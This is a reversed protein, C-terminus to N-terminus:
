SLFFKTRRNGRTPCLAVPALLATQARQLKQSEHSLDRRASLRGDKVRECKQFSAHDRPRLFLIIPNVLCGRPACGQRNRLCCDALSDYCATFCKIGAYARERRQTDRRPSKNNKIMAVTGAIHHLPQLRLPDRAIINIGRRTSTMTFCQEPIRDM